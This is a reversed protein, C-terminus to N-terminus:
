FITKLEKANKIISDKWGPETYKFCVRLMGSEKIFSACENQLTYGKISIGKDPVALISLIIGGKADYFELKDDAQNYVKGSNLITASPGRVDAILNRELDFIKGYVWMRGNLIQFGINFVTDKINLIGFPLYFKQHNQINKSLFSVGGTNSFLIALTDKQLLKSSLSLGLMEKNVYKSRGMFLRSCNSLKNIYYFFCILLLLTAAAVMIVLNRRKSLVKM